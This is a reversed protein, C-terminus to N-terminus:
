WQIVTIKIEYVWKCFKVRNLYTETESFVNGEGCLWKKVNGEGANYAMIVQEERDFRTSLYSLYFVGVMINYKPDFLKEKSYKENLKDACWLATSPMLQM